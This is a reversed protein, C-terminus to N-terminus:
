PCSPFEPAIEHVPNLNCSNNLSFSVLFKCPNTKKGQYRFLFRYSADTNGLKELEIEMYNSDSVYIHKEASDGDCVVVSRVVNSERLTAYERCYRCPVALNTKHIININNISKLRFTSCVGQYPADGSCDAHYSEISHKSVETIM